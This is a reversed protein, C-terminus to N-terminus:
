GDNLRDETHVIVINDILEFGIAAAADPVGDPLKIGTDPVIAANERAKREKKIIIKWMIINAIIFVVAAASIILIEYKTVTM